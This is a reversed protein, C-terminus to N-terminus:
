RAAKRGAAERGGCNEAASVSIIGTCHSGLPAAHGALAGAIALILCLRSVLAPNLADRPSLRVATFYGAMLAIASTIGFAHVTFGGLHWVPQPFYPIM